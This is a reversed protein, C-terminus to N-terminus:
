QLEELQLDVVQDVRPRRLAGERLEERQADALLLLVGLPEVRRGLLLKGGSRFGGTVGEVAEEVNLGGTVCEQDGGGACESGSTNVAVALGRRLRELALLIHEVHEALGGRAVEASGFGGGEEVFRATGGPGATSEQLGARGGVAEQSRGRLGM